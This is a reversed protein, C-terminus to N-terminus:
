LDLDTWTVDSRQCHVTNVSTQLSLSYFDDRIDCLRLLLAIMHSRDDETNLDINTFSQSPNHLKWFILRQGPVLSCGALYSFDQAESHEEFTLSESPLSPPKRTVEGCSGGKIIVDVIAVGTNGSLGFGVVLVHFYM